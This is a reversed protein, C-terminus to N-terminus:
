LSRGGFTGAGVVLAETNSDSTDLNTPTLASFLDGTQITQTPKPTVLKFEYTGNGSSTPDNVTIEFYTKTVNNDKYTAEYTNTTGDKLKFTYGDNSPHDWQLSSNINNFTFPKNNADIANWTYTGTTLGATNNALVGNVDLRPTADTFQVNGGLDISVNQSASLGSFNFATVLAQLNLVSNSLSIINEGPAHDIARSQTFTVNGYSDVAISFVQAGNSDNIKGTVVDGNINKFLYINSGQSTLGSEINLINFSYATVSKSDAVVASQFISLFNETDSTSTSNIDTTELLTAGDVSSSIEFVNTENLTVNINTTLGSSDRATVVLAQTNTGREFDNTLAAAGAATLSIAGSTPDIAYAAVSNSPNSPDPVLVNNTISYTVTDGADADSAAVTGLLVGAATNEAYSFVYADNTSDSNTDTNPTTFVPANNSSQPEQSSEDVEIPDVVPDTPGTGEPDVIPAPTTNPNTAETPTPATTETAPAEATVTEIAEATTAAAAGPTGSTTNQTGINNSGVIDQAQQTATNEVASDSVNVETGFTGAGALVAEDTAGIGVGDSTSISTDLLSNTGAGELDRQNINTGTSDSFLSPSDQQPTSSTNVEADAAGGTTQTSEGGQQLAIMNDFNQADQAQQTSDVNADAM